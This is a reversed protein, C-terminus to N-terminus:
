TLARFVDLLKDREVDWNLHELAVRRIARRRRLREDPPADLLAAISAAISTATWPEVVSGLGEDAVLTATWTGGAVIVPIGAMVAEFLKNPTTLTQNVTTPPTGVFAVDAGATFALLEESPVPPLVVIREPRELAARRLHDELPGFGLFVAVLDRGRLPPADLAALLMEIGQDPRFAGQYLVVGRGAPLGAARRLTAPEPAPEDPRWPERVNLV